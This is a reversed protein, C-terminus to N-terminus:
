SMSICICVPDSNIELTSNPVEKKTTPSATEQSIKQWTTTYTYDTLLNQKEPEDTLTDRAEDLSIAPSMIIRPRIRKESSDDKPPKQFILSINVRLM